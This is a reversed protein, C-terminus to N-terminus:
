VDLNDNLGRTKGMVYTYKLQFNISMKVFTLMKLYTSVMICFSILLYNRLIANRWKSKVKIFGQECLKPIVILQTLRNWKDIFM